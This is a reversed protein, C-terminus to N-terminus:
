RTNQLLLVNAVTDLTMLFYFLIDGFMSESENDDYATAPACSLPILELMSSIGMQTLWPM